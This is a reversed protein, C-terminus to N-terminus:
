SQIQYVSSPRKKLCNSSLRFSKQCVLFTTETTTSSGTIGQFPKKSKRINFNQLFQKIREAQSSVREPTITRGLFDVQIGGFHCKAMTLKLGARRICEFVTKINNCLQTSDNAAIGTDDVYQACQDAKIAKDLYERMFSSLVSLSRSLGRALRQYAFTRSAVNFALMQISQYVAMQLCHYAQSCDLKCFLKKGAIHQAADSLTSM